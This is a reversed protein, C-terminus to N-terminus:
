KPCRRSWLTVAEGYLESLIKFKVGQSNSSFHVIFSAFCSVPLNM